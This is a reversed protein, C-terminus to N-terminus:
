EAIEWEAAMTKKIKNTIKPLEIVIKYSKTNLGLFFHLFERRNKNM